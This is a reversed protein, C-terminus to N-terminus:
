VENSNWTVLGNREVWSYMCCLFQASTQSCNCFTYLAMLLTPSPVPSIVPQNLAVPQEELLGPNSEWSWICNWDWYCHSGCASCEHPICVYVCVFYRYVYNKFKMQLFNLLPYAFCILPHLCKVVFTVVWTQDRFGCPSLPFRLRSFCVEITVGYRVCFCVFLLANKKKILNKFLFLSHQLPQLSPETPLASAMLACLDQKSEGADVVLLWANHQISATVNSSRTLWVSGQCKSPLWDLSSPLRWALSLCQRFLLAQLIVGSAIKQVSACTYTHACACVCYPCLNKWM